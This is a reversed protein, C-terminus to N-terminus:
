YFKECHSSNMQPKTVNLCVGCRMRRSKTTMQQQEKSEKMRELVIRHSEWEQKRRVKNEWCYNQVREQLRDHVITGMLQQSRIRSYEEESVVEKNQKDQRQDLEDELPPVNSPLKSISGMQRMQKELYYARAQENSALEVIDRVPPIRNPITPMQLSQTIPTSEALPTVMQTMGLLTSM